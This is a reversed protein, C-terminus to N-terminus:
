KKIPPFSTKGCKTCRLAISMYECNDASYGKPCVKNMNEMGIEFCTDQVADCWYIRMKTHKCAM